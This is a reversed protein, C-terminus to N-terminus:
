RDDFLMLDAISIMPEADSPTFVRIQVYRASTEGVFYSEVPKLWGNTQSDIVTWKVLDDSVLVDWSDCRGVESSPNAGHYISYTDFNKTEGLDFIIYGAIGKLFSLLDDTHAYDSRWLTEPDSDLINEPSYGEISGSCSVIVAGSAVNVSGEFDDPLLVAPYVMREVPDNDIMPYSHDPLYPIGETLFNDKYNGFGVFSWGFHGETVRWDLMSELWYQRLSEFSDFRGGSIESVIRSIDSEPDGVGSDNKLSKNVIARNISDILGSVLVGNEDKVTPFLWDLFSFFVKSGAGGPAFEWDVVIPEDSRYYQLYKGSPVSWDFYRFEIYDAISETWWSSEFGSYEMVLHSLEHAIFGMTNPHQRVFEASLILSDDVSYAVGDYLPDLIISVDSPAFDSYSFRSVIRPYTDYFLESVASCYNDRNELSNWDGEFYLHYAWDSYQGKLIRVPIEDCPSSNYGCKLLLRYDGEDLFPVTFEAKGVYLGVGDIEVYEPTFPGFTRLIGEDSTGEFSIYFDVPDGAYFGFGVYTGAEAELYSIHFDARVTLPVFFVHHLGVSEKQLKVAIYDYDNLFDEYRVESCTGENTLFFRASSKMGILVDILGEPSGVYDCGPYDIFPNVEWVGSSTKMTGKGGFGSFEVTQEEGGSAPLPVLATYDDFEPVIMTDEQDETVSVATSSPTTVSLDKEYRKKECSVLFLLLILIFVISRKM